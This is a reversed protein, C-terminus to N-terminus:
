NREFRLFGLKLGGAQWEVGQAQNAMLSIRLRRREVPSLSDDTDLVAKTWAASEEWFPVTEATADVEDVLEFGASKAAEVYDLVTAPKTYFYETGNVYALHVISDIGKMASRVAAPDRIDGHVMEIKPLMDGLRDSSGRSDNDFCRVQAGADLLAAIVGRGIFGTGGTILFRRGQLLM